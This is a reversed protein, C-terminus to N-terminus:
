FGLLVYKKWGAIAGYNEPTLTETPVSLNEALKPKGPVPCVRLQDVKVQGFGPQPWPNPDMNYRRKIVAVLGKLSGKYHSIHDNDYM